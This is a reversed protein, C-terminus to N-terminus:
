ILTFSNLHLQISHGCSEKTVAHQALQPDNSTAITRRGDPLDCLAITTAPANNMYLVTYTAITAPGRAEDALELRPTDACTAETVDDFHFKSTRPETSWLSVGQKTLIGSVATAMGLSGPDARLVEVMRPLAQLVYHNFPGGAFTMGGTLTLARAATLGLEQLQVRVAAPFCSYLELHQVESIEASIRGLATTAAHAFGPCREIQRRRSLACVDNSDAIALPIVWRERPIGFRQATAVSCLILAAAQNVNWQSALMKTYPFALEGSRLIMEADVPEQTWAQPNTQAVRSYAAWLGALEERHRRVDQGSNARLSNEIMAYQTVPGALGRQIELLDIVLADPKILSDPKCPAQETNKVNIGLRKAQQERYKAEAGVVLAIESKGNAIDRAARGLLTTQLVGVDAIETRARTAGLQDALLRGPDSYSWLGRPIRISDANTILEHSGADKAAADLASLMLALAERARAPDAEYEQVAAAGVLVPTSPDITM